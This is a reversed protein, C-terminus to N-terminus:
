GRWAPPGGLMAVPLPVGGDHDSPVYLHKSALEEYRGRYEQAWRAAGEVKGILAEHVRWMTGVAILEKPADSTDADASGARLRTTDFQPYPRQSYVVYQQGWGLPPLIASLTGNGQDFRTERPSLTHEQYEDRRVADSVTNFVIYAEDLYVTGDVNVEIEIDCKTATSSMTHQATLEEIGGGGTHYSSSTTTVGDDVTVRLQSASSATGVVVATVVQGRLSSPTASSGNSLLGVNQNLVANTGARTVALTYQGRRAGTTSRAMSASAGTLTWWDPQVAGASSVSNWQEFYRNRSMVPNSCTAISMIDNPEQIWDLAHLWYRQQGSVGPLITRDRRRTSALMFNIAEDVDQPEYEPGLIELFESTATTDAYNTGAHTLTGTSATFSFVKRIRDAASAAEARLLWHGRFRESGYGGTALATVVATTTSLSAISEVRGVLDRQLAYLHRRIDKLTTM